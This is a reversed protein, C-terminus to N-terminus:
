ANNLNQRAEERMAAIQASHGTDWAHKLVSCQCVNIITLTAHTKASTIIISLVHIWVTLDIAGANSAAQWQCASTISM